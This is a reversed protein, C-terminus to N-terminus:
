CTMKATIADFLSYYSLKVSGVVAALRYFGGNYVGFNIQYKNVGFIKLTLCKFYCSSSVSTFYVISIFKICKELLYPLLKFGDFQTVKIFDDGYGNERSSGELVKNNILLSM